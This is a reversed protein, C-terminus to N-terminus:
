STDSHGSLTYRTMGTRYDWFRVTENASASAVLKGDPSFAVAMVWDSHGELTRCPSVLPYIIIHDSGKSAQVGAGVIEKGIDPFSPLPRAAQLIRCQSVLESEEGSTEGDTRTETHIPRGQAEEVQGAAREAANKRIQAWRDMPSIEKTLQRRAPSVETSPPNALHNIKLM